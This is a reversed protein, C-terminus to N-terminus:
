RVKNLVQKVLMTIADAADQISILKWLRESFVTWSM